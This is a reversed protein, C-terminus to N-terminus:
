SVQKAKERAASSRMKPLWFRINEREEKMLRCKMWSKEQEDEGTLAALLDNYFDEDLLKIRFDKDAAMKTQIDKGIRGLSKIMAKQVQRRKIEDVMTM